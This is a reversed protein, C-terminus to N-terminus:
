THVIDNDRLFDLTLSDINSIMLAVGNKYPSEIYDLLIDAADVINISNRLTYLINIIEYVYVLKGTKLYKSYINNIKKLNSIDSLLMPTIRYDTYHHALLQENTM